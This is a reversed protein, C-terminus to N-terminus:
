RPTEAVNAESAPKALAALAILAGGIGVAWIGIGASGELQHGGLLGPGTTELKLRDGTGQYIAIALLIGGALLGSVAVKSASRDRYAAAGGALALAIVFIGGGGHAIM